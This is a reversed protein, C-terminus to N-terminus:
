RAGDMLFEVLADLEQPSIRQAFDEPMAGIEYGSAGQANPLVISEIVYDRSKGHLSLTLDPGIPSNSNAPDFKHCSGCGQQIFVTLGDPAAQARARAPAGAPAPQPDSGGGAFAAITMAAGACALGGAALITARM